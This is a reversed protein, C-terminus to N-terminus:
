ILDFLKMYQEALKLRNRNVCDGLKERIIERENWLDQFLSIVDQSQFSNIPICYRSQGTDKMLSDVKPHYSIALVPKYILQALLVGHFRSAIVADTKQLQDMLEDVTNVPEFIIQDPQPKSNNKLINAHLDQLVPLDHVAEGPFLLIAYNHELLWNCISTLQNLYDQYIKEDKEPWVRPDFYSMAGIGITGAFTNNLSPNKHSVQLSHALDPYVPDDNPFGIGNVFKKSEEDRYSRYDALHLTRRVLWRSIASDLPGAGVSVVLYKAGRLKSLVAWLLLTYPHHWAGGWYDDLQGGGSVIFADLGIIRKSSEFISMLELPVSFVVKNLLRILKVPSARLRESAKHAWNFMQVVGPRGAWGYAAMRGLSFAKIGHRKETDEPNLSFGLLEAGPFRDQLHQLMAQQIAADGLNGFGFPGMIGIKKSGM